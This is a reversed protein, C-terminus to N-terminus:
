PVRQYCPAEGRAVRRINEVVVAQIGAAAVDTAGGIHPTSLLNEAFIPDDPDPPEEWFVDLGAGALHGSALAHLLAAREVLGGRALNILYSGPKMMALRERNMLGQTSAMAPLCLVTYDAEALLRPLADPGGIWDFPIDPPPPNAPNQRTAILRMDFAVLRRALALGIGGLGVLGVTKGSLAIGLPAGVVRQQLSAAMARTNRSLGVMLYIGLEAVSDANGSADSPVNAVPIGRAQAAVLDVGELGVGSQQILRLRDATALLTADISAMTPILVEVGALSEVGFRGSSRIHHEPLAARLKGLFGGWATEPATFLIEM